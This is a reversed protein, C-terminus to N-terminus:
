GAKSRRRRRSKKSEHRRMMRRRRDGARMRRGDRSRCGRGKWEKEELCADTQVLGRRMGENVRCWGSMRGDARCRAGGHKNLAM